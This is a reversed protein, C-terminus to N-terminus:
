SRMGLYTVQNKVLISGSSVQKLDRIRDRSQDPEGTGRSRAIYAAVATSAGGLISTSLQAGRASVAASIGTILAGLIVQAGMAGNLARSSWLAAM